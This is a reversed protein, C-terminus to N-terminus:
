IGQTGDRSASELWTRLESLDAEGCRRELVALAFVLGSPVFGLPAVLREEAIEARVLLEPVVAMGLGARAAELMPILHDFRRTRGRLAARGTARCWEKWADPRSDTSLRPVASLGAANRLERSWRRACVPGITEPAVDIVAIDSPWPASGCVVLADIRGSRLDDFGGDTRLRLRIGPHAAEFSELRPVMWHAIFSGPAALDIERSANRAVRACADALIGFATGAADALERGSETLRLGRGQRRVLEKGFWDELAAIQHSVAGQTVFLEAAAATVSGTRAVAEFSRLASLSPFPASEHPSNM